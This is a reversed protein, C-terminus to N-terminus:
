IQSLDLSFSLTKTDKREQSQSLTEKIVLIELLEQFLRFSYDKKIHDSLALSYLGLDYTISSVHINCDLYKVLGYTTNYKQSLSLNYVRIIM